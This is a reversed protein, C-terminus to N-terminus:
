TPPAPPESIEDILALMDDLRGRMREVLLILGAQPMQGLDEARASELDRRAFDIRSRQLDTLVLGQPTTPTKEDTM